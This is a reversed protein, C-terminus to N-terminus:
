LRGSWRRIQWKKQRKQSKRGKDYRRSIDHEGRTEKPLGDVIILRQESLFPLTNSSMVVNKLDVETGNFVDENFGFDGQTRLKKLFECSLFGDEGHLLYFMAM